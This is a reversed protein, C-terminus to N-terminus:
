ELDSLKEGTLIEYLIASNEKSLQVYKNSAEVVELKDKHPSIWVEHGVAKAEIKPNKFQFVFRYDARRVMNVVANEWDANSLIAKVKQVKENDNIKKYDEYKNEESIYKQVVISQKEDEIGNSCSTIVLLFITLM